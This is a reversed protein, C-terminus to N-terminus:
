RSGKPKAAKRKEHRNRPKKTPVLQEWASAALEKASPMPPLALPWEIPDDFIAFGPPLKAPLPLSLADQGVRDRLQQMLDIADRESRAEVLVQDFVAGDSRFAALSGRLLHQTGPGIILVREVERRPFAVEPLTDVLGELPLGSERVASRIADTGAIMNVIGLMTALKGGGRGGRTAYLMADLMDQHGRRRRKRRAERRDAQWKRVEDRQWCSVTGDLEAANALPRWETAHGAALHALVAATWKWGTPAAKDREFQLDVTVSARAMVRGYWTSISTAGAQQLRAILQAETM